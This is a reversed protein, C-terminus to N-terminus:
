REEEGFDETDVPQEEPEPKSVGEGGEGEEGGEGSGEQQREKRQQSAEGGKGAVEAFAVNSLVKTIRIKVNDGTSTNPVFIVFGEKKAIGDGKAGVAEITVDVEEGVRVPAAKQDFDRSGGGRFGRGGGFGGSRM